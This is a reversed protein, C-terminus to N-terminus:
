ASCKEGFLNTNSVHNDVTQYGSQNFQNTDYIQTPGASYSTAAPNSASRTTEDVIWKESRKRRKAFLEAGARCWAFHLILSFQFHHSIPLLHIRYFVKEKQHTQTCPVSWNQASIPRYCEVATTMHSAQLTFTKCSAARTWWWNWHYKRNTDNRQTRNKKASNAIIALDTWTLMKM